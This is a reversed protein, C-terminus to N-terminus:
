ILTDLVDDVHDYMWYHGAEPVRILRCGPISQALDYAAEPPVISDREGQWLITPARIASLDVQWPKAYVKLDQTAADFSHRLADAGLDLLEAVMEPRRVIARDKPPLTLAMMQHQLKPIAFFGRRVWPSARDLITDEPLGLFFWAQLRDNFRKKSLKSFEGV